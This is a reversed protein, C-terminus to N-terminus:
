HASQEAQCLFLSTLLINVLTTAVSSKLKTCNNSDQTGAGGLAYIWKDKPIGLEKAFATSTLICAGALNITNFANMLLPDPTLWILM